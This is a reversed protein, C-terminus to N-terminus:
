QAVRRLKILLSFALFEHGCIGCVELLQHAPDIHSIRTEFLLEEIARLSDACRPNEGRRFVSGGEAPHERRFWEGPHFDPLLASWRLFSEFGRVVLEETLEVVGQPQTQPSFGAAFLEACVRGCSGATEQTLSSV